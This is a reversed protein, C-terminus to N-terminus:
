AVLTEILVQRIPRDIVAGVDLVEDTDGPPAVVYLGAAALGAIWLVDPAREAAALHGGPQYGVTERM